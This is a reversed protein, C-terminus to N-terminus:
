VSYAKFRYTLGDSYIPIRYTSSSASISTYARFNMNTKGGSANANYASMKVINPSNGDSEKILVSMSQVSINNFSTLVIIEAEFPLTLEVFYQVGANTGDAYNFATMSGVTSVINGALYKKGSPIANINTALTDFTADAATNVGKTTIAASVKTKGDVVSQKLDQLSTWVNSNDMFQVNKNGLIRLAVNGNVLMNAEVENNSPTTLTRIVFKKKTGDLASSQLTIDPVSKDIILSGSMTGGSKNFKEDNLQKVAKSTAAKTEDDLTLSTSFYTTPVADIQRKIEVGMAASLVKNADDTTLNNVIEAGGNNILDQVSQELRDMGITLPTIRTGSITDTDGFPMNRFIAISVNNDEKKVMPNDPIGLIFAPSTGRISWSVSPLYVGNHFVIISDTVPDFTGQPIDWEKQEVVTTNLKLTNVKTVGGSGGSGGGGEIWGTDATNTTGDHTIVRTYTIGSSIKVVELLKLTNFNDENLYVSGFYPEQTPLFATNDATVYFQGSVAMQSYETETIKKLDSTAYGSAALFDKLNQIHTDTEGKTYAGVDTADLTVGGTADPSKGNVKLVADQQLELEVNGNEDPSQGNVSSVSGTGDVGRRAILIWDQNDMSPRSNTNQRKAQWTSGNETVVNNKEFNTVADWEVATGWGKINEAAQNAADTAEVANVIAVETAEVANTVAIDAAEITNAIAIDAENLKETVTSSLDEKVINIDRVAQNASETATNSEDIVVNVAEIAQDIQNLSSNVNEIARETAIVAEQAEDAARQAADVASQVDSAAQNAKDAASNANTIAEHVEDVNLYVGDYKAKLKLYGYLNRHDVPVGIIGNADVPITWLRMYNEFPETEGFVYGKEDLFGVYYTTNYKTIRFEKIFARWLQDNLSVISEDLLIKYVDVTDFTLNGGYIVYDDLFFGFSELRVDNLYGNNQQFELLRQASKSTAAAVKTM